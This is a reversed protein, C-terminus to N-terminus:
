KAHTVGLAKRIDAQAQKYGEKYAINAIEAARKAEDDSDMRLEPYLTGGYYGPLGDGHVYYKSDSGYRSEYPKTLTNSM